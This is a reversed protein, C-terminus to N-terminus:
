AISEFELEKKVIETVMSNNYQLKVNTTWDDKVKLEKTPLNVYLGWESRQHVAVKEPLTNTRTHSPTTAWHM